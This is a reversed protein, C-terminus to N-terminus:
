QGLDNGYLDMHFRCSDTNLDSIVLTGFQDFTAAIEGSLNFDIGTIENGTLLCLFHTAIFFLLYISAVYHQPHWKSKRILKVINGAKSTAFNYLHYAIKGQVNIAGLFSRRPNYTVVGYDTDLIFIFYIKVLFRGGSVEEFSYIKRVQGKRSVDFVELNASKSGVHQMSVLLRTNAIEKVHTWNDDGQSITILYSNIHFFNFFVKLNFVMLASLNKSRKSNLSAFGIIKTQLGPM